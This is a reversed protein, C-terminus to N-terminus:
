WVTCLCFKGDCHLTVRPKYNVQSATENFGNMPPLQNRGLSANFHHLAETGIPMATHLNPQSQFPYCDSPFINQPLSGRSQFM